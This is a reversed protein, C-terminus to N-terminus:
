LRLLEPWRIDSRQADSLKKYASVARQVPPVFYSTKWTTKSHMTRLSIENDGHQSADFSRWASEAHARTMHSRADDESVFGSKILAGKIAAAMHTRMPDFGTSTIFPSTGYHASDKNSGKPAPGGDFAASGVRDVWDCFTQVTCVRRAYSGPQKIHKARTREFIHWDSWLQGGAKKPKAYRIRLRECATPSVTDDGKRDLMRTNYGIRQIGRTNQM